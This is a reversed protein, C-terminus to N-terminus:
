RRAMVGQPASPPMPRIEFYYEREGQTNGANDVVYFTLRYAGYGTTDNAFAVKNAQVWDLGLAWHGPETDAPVWKEWKLMIRNIGSVPDSATLTLTVNYYWYPGNTGTGVAGRDPTLQWFPNQSDIKVHCTQATEVNGAVDASRFNVVNDGENTITSITVSTGRTWAGGNVQYETYAVGSGGANDAATFTLTVSTNHWADDAGTVSTTPPTTDTGGGIKVHCTKYTEVNGAVDASRYDVTNDGSASITVSTGQTWAGGNVRYETYAVGSGGADDSASFTLTVPSAHWQDDAGSVTTTPPTADGSGIKVVVEKATEANGAVDVARYLVRNEGPQSITASTGHTWTVGADLSYETNAVGSGLAFDIRAMVPQLVRVGSVSVWRWSQVYTKSGLVSSGPDVANFTLTVPSAHWEADAGTVSTQPTSLDIKELWSTPQSQNGARDVASCTVWYVGGAPLTVGTDSLLPQTVAAWPEYGLPVGTRYGQAQAAMGALGSGGTDSGGVPVAPSTHWQNWDAPPPQVAPAEADIRVTVSKVDEAYEHGGSTLVSRYEVLHVGAPVDTWVRGSTYGYGEACAEWAGGDIRRMTRLRYTSPEADTNAYRLFNIRYKGGVVNAKVWGDAPVDTYTSPVAFDTLPRTSDVEAEALTTEYLTWPGLSWEDVYEIVFKLDARLGGYIGWVPNDDPNIRLRVYPGVSLEPGILSYLEASAWLDVGAKARFNGSIDKDVVTFSNTPTGGGVPVFGPDPSNCLSKWSGSYEAGVRFSLDQKVDAYATCSAEASAYAETGLECTVWVPVPGAMFEFDHSLLTTREEVSWRKSTKFLVTHKGAPTYFQENFYFYAGAWIHSWCIDAWYALGAHMEMTGNFELRGLDNEWSNDLAKTFSFIEWRTYKDGTRGGSASGSSTPILRLQAQAFVDQLSADSSTLSTGGVAPDVSVVTRMLGGPVQECPKLIVIDGAALSTVAEPAGVFVVVSQDDAVSSVTAGLGDPLVHVNDRVVTPVTRACSFKAGVIRLAGAWAQGASFAAGSSAGILEAGSKKGVPVFAVLDAKGDGDMDAAGVQAKAALAPTVAMPTASLGEPGPAYATVSSAGGQAGVLLAEEASDGNVDGSALRAGSVVAGVATPTTETLAQGDYRFVHLVGGGAGPSFAVTEDVLDEDLDGCAIQTGAALGGAPVQALGRPTLTGELYDFALLLTSGDKRPTSLLACMRDEAGYRGSALSASKWVITGRKGTWAAVPVFKAGDSAFYQLKTGKKGLDVLVMADTFGDANFDGAVLKASKAPLKGTWMLLRQSSEGDTVFLYLGAKGKGLDALMVAADHGPINRVEGTSEAALVAPAGCLLAGAALVALAALRPAWRKAGGDRSRAQAYRAAHM